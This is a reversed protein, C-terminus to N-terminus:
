EAALAPVVRALLHLDWLTAFPLAVSQFVPAQAQEQAAAPLASSLIASRGLASVWHPPAWEEAEQEPFYPRNVLFAV